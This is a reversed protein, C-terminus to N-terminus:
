TKLKIILAGIYNDNFILGKNPITIYHKTKLIEPVEITISENNIILTETNGISTRIEKYLAPYKSGDAIIRWDKITPIIVLHGYNSSHQNGIDKFILYGQKNMNKSSVLLTSKVTNIDVTGIDRIYRNYELELEFGNLLEDLTVTIHQVIHISDKIDINYLDKAYDYELLYEYAITLYKFDDENGSVTDPHYKKVLQKYKSKITDKNRVDYESIGFFQCYKILQKNSSQM